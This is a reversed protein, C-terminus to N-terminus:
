RAPRRFTARFPAGRWAAEAPAARWERFLRRWQEGLVIALSGAALAVLGLLLGTRFGHDLGLARVAAAALPHELALRGREAPTPSQTVATSAVGALAVGALEAVITRPSRLFRRLSTM